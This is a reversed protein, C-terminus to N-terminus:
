LSGMNETLQKYKREETEKGPIGLTEKECKGFEFKQGNKL